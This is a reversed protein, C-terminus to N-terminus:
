PCVNGTPQLTTVCSAAAASCLRIEALSFASNFSFGFATTTTLPRIEVRNFDAGLLTHVDMSITAHRGDSSCSEKIVPSGILTATTGSVSYFRLEVRERWVFITEFSDLTFAFKAGTELFDIKLGEGGSTLLGDGGSVGGISDTGTSEFSINQDGGADFATVTANNFNITAQGTDAGPNQGLAAQLTPRDFVVAALVTDPWNRASLGAVKVLDPLTRYAVLDDFHQNSTTKTELDSFAQVVFPGAATTHAREAGGNQPLDRQVGSTTWAGLGTAGHSIVVYAVDNHVTGLDTVQLGKNALFLAPTTNRNATNADANCLRGTNNAGDATLGGPIADLTDCAVMSVGGDQVLSGSGTYVRYSLKLGWADYADEKNLGIARWPVTGATVGGPLTCTGGVRAVEAGTEPVLTPDAPCPLRQASAAFSDLAATIKALRTTSQEREAVISTTRNLAALAILSVIVIVVILLILAGVSGRQSRM